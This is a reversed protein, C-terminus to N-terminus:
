FRWTSGTIVRTSDYHDGDDHILTLRLDTSAGIGYSVSLAYSQYSPILEDDGSYRIDMAYATIRWSGLVRVAQVGNVFVSTNGSSPAISNRYSTSDSFSVSNGLNFIWSTGLRYVLSSSVSATFLCSGMDLDSSERFFINAAPTVSWTWPSKNAGTLVRRTYAAGVGYGYVSADRLITDGGSSLNVMCDKYSAYNIPITFQIRDRPSLTYGFPIKASYYHARMGMISYSGYCADAGISDFHGGGTQKSESVDATATDGFANDMATDGAVLMVSSLPHGSTISAPTDPSDYGEGQLEPVWSEEHPDYSQARAASALALIIFATALAGQYRIIM